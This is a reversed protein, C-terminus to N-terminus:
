QIEDISGALKVTQGQFALIETFFSSFWPDEDELGIM